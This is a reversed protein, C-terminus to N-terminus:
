KRKWSMPDDPFFRICLLGGFVAGLCPGIIHSLHLSSLDGSGIFWLALQAAPSFTSTAGPVGILMLPLIPATILYKSMKNVKLLEPVAIIFACYLATAIAETSVSQAFDGAPFHIPKLVQIYSHVYGCIM